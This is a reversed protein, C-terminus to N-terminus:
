RRQAREAFDQGAVYYAQALRAFFARHEGLGPPLEVALAGYASSLFFKRRPLDALRAAPAREALLGACLRILADARADDTHGRQVAETGALALEALERPRSLWSRCAAAAGGAQLRTYPPLIEKEARFLDFLGHGGSDTLLAAGCGMSEFCRFNVEGAATQNLVIRTRAFVPVFDGQMFVLPHLVRFARLFPLREPINKPSLSGVFAVPVDRAALWEEPTCAPEVHRCFLPVWEAAHGEETFLPLFDKQGVWTHDFAHAFPVHWPNCFTDIGYFVLPYPAQELGMVLPLNGDDVQVLADPVFSRAALMERLRAFDLPHELVVDFAKGMSGFSLTSHGARALAPALVANGLLVIRV